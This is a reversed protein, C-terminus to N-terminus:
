EEDQQELWPGLDALFIRRTGTPCGNFAIHRYDRDWAPHPDVRLERKPGVFPPVSPIRVLCREAGTQLDIGRLPVSGDGFAVPEGPYSDTLLHRGDRHLSPHGSGPVAETLPALGTGDYRVRMLTLGQRGERRLNLTITEGDPAWDPHHGGRSWDVASVALHLDSGDPRCTILAPRVPGGNRPVWRLVYQLRTGQPNWKVHFGYFDGTAPDDLAERLQEVIAAITIVLRSDGTELDTIWLGDDPAAGRNVPVRERPAIVGYGAQTAGTRLLCGSAARRGDRAVMYITGALRTTRGTALEHRVGYPQWTAPDLDNYYLWRDDAGWQAQAGLQTDAGRTRAIVEHEGTTLDVVVIEALDGPIPLRSESALRTGALYRGSPSIPSTDFFRHFVGDLRPTACVVPVLPAFETYVPLTPSWNPM